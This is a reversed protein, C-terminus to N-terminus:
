NMQYIDATVTLVLENEQKSVTQLTTTAPAQRSLTFNKWVIIKDMTASTNLFNIIQTYSGSFVFHVPTVSFGLSVTQTPMVKNEQVSLGQNKALTEVATVFQNLGASTSIQMFAQQTQKQLALLKKQQQPTQGIDQELAKIQQRYQVTRHQMVFLQQQEKHLDLLFGAVIIAIVILAGTLRQKALENM